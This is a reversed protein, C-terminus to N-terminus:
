AQDSIKSIDNLLHINPNSVNISECYSNFWIQFPLCKDLEIKELMRDNPFSNKKNIHLVTNVYQHKRTSLEGGYVEKRLITRNLKNMINCMDKTRDLLEDLSRKPIMKKVKMLECIDPNEKFFSDILPKINKNERDKNKKLYTVQSHYPEKAKPLRKHEKIWIVLKEWEKVRSEVSQRYNKNTYWNMFTHSQELLQKLEPNIENARYQDYIRWFFKLRSEEEECHKPVRQNEDIWIILKKVKEVEESPQPIIYTRWTNIQDLNFIIQEHEARILDPVSNYGKYNITLGYMNLRKSNILKIEESLLEDTKSLAALVGKLVFFDSKEIDLNKECLVPILIDLIKNEFGRIGRGIIQQILIASQIPESICVADISPIDIGTTLSRVSSILAKSKTIDFDNLIKERNKTKHTITESFVDEKEYFIMKVLASILEADRISNSFSFIKKKGRDFADKITFAALIIRWPVKLTTKKDTYIHFYAHELTITDSIPVVLNYDCLISDRIGQRLNYTFFISGFQEKNSMCVCKTAKNKLNMYSPTGSIFLQKESILSLNSSLFWKSLNSYVGVLFHCEDFIIFQSKFSCSPALSYFKEISAYTVFVIIHQSQQSQKYNNFYKKLDYENTTALDKRTSNSSCFYIFYSNEPFYKQIQPILSLYPVVYILSLTSTRPFDLAIRLAMNTKGSGMIATITGKENNEFHKLGLNIANEQYQRTNQSKFVLKSPVSVTKINTDHSFTLELIKKMIEPENRDIELLESLNIQQINSHALKDSGLFDLQKNQTSIYIGNNLRRVDDLWTGLQKVTYYDNTLFKCQISIYGTENDIMYNKKKRIVIDTGSDHKHLCLKLKKDASLDNYFWIKEILFNYLHYEKLLYYSFIEFYKGKANNDLQVLTDRFELFSTCHKM